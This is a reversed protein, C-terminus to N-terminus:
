MSCEVTGRFGNSELFYTNEVKKGVVDAVIGVTLMDGGEFNSFVAGGSVNCEYHTKTGSFM